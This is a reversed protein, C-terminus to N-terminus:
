MGLSKRTKLIPIGKEDVGVMIKSAGIWVAHQLDCSKCVLYYGQQRYIHNGPTFTYAPKSFNVTENLEEQQEKQNNV